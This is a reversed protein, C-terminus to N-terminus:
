LLMWISFRMWIGQNLFYLPSFLVFCFGLKSISVNLAFIFPAIKLLFTMVGAYIELPTLMFMVILKPLNELGYDSTGLISILESVDFDILVGGVNTIVRTKKEESVDMNSYFMKVLDPYM